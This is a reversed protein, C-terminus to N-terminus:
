EWKSNRNYLALDMGKFSMIIDEKEMRFEMNKHTYIIKQQKKIPKEENQNQTRNHAKIIIHLKYKFCKRKM